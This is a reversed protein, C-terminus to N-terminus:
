FISIADSLQSVLNQSAEDAMTKDGAFSRRRPASMVNSFGINRRFWFTWL